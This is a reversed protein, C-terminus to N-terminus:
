TSTKLFENDHTMQKKNKKLMTMANIREDERGHM